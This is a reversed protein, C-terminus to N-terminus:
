LATLVADTPRFEQAAALCTPCADVHAAVRELADGSLLGGALGALEERSPCDSTSM